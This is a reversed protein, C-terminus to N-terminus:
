SGARQQVRDPEAAGARPLYVRFTTGRGPATEVTIHGGSQKVIGYSAALDLGSGDGLDRTTHFPEFLCARAAEGMGDGTDTVALLVYAGPRFEPDGGIDGEGVDANRTALTLTGGHPMARAANFILNLVVEELLGPDAHVLGLGPGPETVV